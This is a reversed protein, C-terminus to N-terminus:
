LVFRFGVTESDSGEDATVVIDDDGDSDSVADPKQPAHHSVQRPNSGEGHESNSPPLARGKGKSPRPSAQVDDQPQPQVRKIPTVTKRRTAHSSEVHVEFDPLDKKSDMREKGKGASKRRSSSALISDEDPSSGQETARLASSKLSTIEKM